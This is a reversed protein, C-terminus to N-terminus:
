FTRFTDGTRDVFFYFGPVDQRVLDGTRYWRDGKQFVDTLIKKNTGQARVAISGWSCFMLLPHPSGAVVWWM